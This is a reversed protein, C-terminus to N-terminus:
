PYLKDIKLVGFARLENSIRCSFLSLREWGNGCFVRSHIPCGCLIQQRILLASASCLRALSAIRPLTGSKGSSLALGASSFRLLSFCGHRAFACLATLVILRKAEHESRGRFGLNLEGGEILKTWSCVIEQDCDPVFRNNSKRQTRNNIRCSFLSM